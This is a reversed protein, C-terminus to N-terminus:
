IVGDSALRAFETRSLGLWDCYIAENDRGVDGSPEIAPLPTESFRLPSRPLVMDGYIPHHVLELAGRERMHVDNVVEDLDRVPACTIGASMLRSFTEQKSLGSTFGSVLEDVEDIHAVREKLTSYRVDGNLDSRGIVDLLVDWKADSACLVTIFGDTTPYANYPAEAMGGHRNGTRPPIGGKSGYHLGLNSALTPFVAEMMAVEVLQGRGTREREYLASVLGAYLHVGGLFDCLAPGAKVPPRDAFGNISMVGSMAQVTIDMAPYNKMPGSLGYGSGSAYVLRPNIERLTEYGLGLRDMAGPSFNEIVVDGKAVMERFLQKGAPSKLNLSAFRKNSNLMAFPLAAGGVEARRRLNEGTVPEIKIVNAGAMAMLFTCYPGNYVQGLDIATVGQLPGAISNM